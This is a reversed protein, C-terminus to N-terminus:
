LCIETGEVPQGTLARYLSGEETIDFILVPLGSLLRAIERLKGRMGGTVDAATSGGVSGSVQALNGRDIRPVRRAAPDLKPDATFIGPLDTGLLVRSAGLRSALEAVLTDGSVVSGGLSRDLVMDGYLLPIVGPLALLRQVPELFIEEVRGKHQVLCASPQVPFVLLGEERFIDMFLKNLDEMSEHTRVLGEIARASTLAGQLGYETVLRHGFPGAGHVAALRLPREGLAQGVERALRRIVEPRARRENSEKHTVAGGGIKLVVLEPEVEAHVAPGAEVPREVGAASQEGAHGAPEEDAGVGLGGAIQPEGERVTIVGQDADVEVWAGGALEEIPIRDVCPIGAMIAGVAVITECEANVIAAPGRGSRALRYLSYSGVTSGKGRPFVLVRGALLQGALPHGPETVVGREPDVGGFFSIAAESRLVAGAARGPAITRGRLSRSM